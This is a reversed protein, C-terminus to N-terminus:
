GGVKGEFLTIAQRCTNYNEDSVSIILGGNPYLLYQITYEKECTKCTVVRTEFMFKPDVSKGDKNCHPCKAISDNSNKLIQAM